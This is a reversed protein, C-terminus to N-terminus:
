VSAVSASAAPTLAVSGPSVRFLLRQVDRVMQGAQLPWFDRAAFRQRPQQLSRM